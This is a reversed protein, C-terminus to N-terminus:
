YKREMDDRAQREGNLRSQFSGSEGKEYRIWGSIYINLWSCQGEGGLTSFSRNIIPTQAEESRQNFGRDEVDGRVGKIEPRRCSEKQVLNKKKM